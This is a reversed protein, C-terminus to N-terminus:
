HHDILGPVSYVPMARTWKSKFYFDGLFQDELESSVALTRDVNVSTEKIWDSSLYPRSEYYDAYHWSDLSGSYNSRFAGSVHSPSYRYDAWAEQYGFVEDSALNPDYYLEKLKVSQEGINALAPWYYDFRSRRSWMKEIGQQYTHDTRVCVLGFLFGHEVFSKTFSNESNTTKSFAATNGQPSTADTSSQQVVQTMNIYTRSSGLYEPRQLSADPATVSFHSKLVEWYRTGGRADRELLKQVQFAQRLQNVTLSISSTYARLNSPAFALKNTPEWDESFGQSTPDFTYGFLNSGSPNTYLGMLYSGASPNAATSYFRMGYTRYKDTSGNPAANYINSTFVPVDEFGISVPSGKQPAPLASTFYDHIKCVSLVRNLDDGYEAIAFDGSSTDVLVPAQLNQDRFFENWILQYGRFPLINIKEFMDVDTPLCFYDALSKAAFSDGPQDGYLSPVEYDIQQEWANVNNEGNFEKWKDWVLRNPVFFWFLDLFANDMVPFIPTTMRVLFSTDMSVTDGPLVEQLYVPYLKGANFTTKHNNIRDFVSRSIDLSPPNQSFMTNVNRKLM